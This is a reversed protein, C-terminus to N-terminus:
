LSKEIVSFQNRSLPVDLKHNQAEFMSQTVVYSVLFTGELDDLMDIGVVVTGHAEFMYDYDEIFQETTKYDDLSKVLEAVDDKTVLIALQTLM